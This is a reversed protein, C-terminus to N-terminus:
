SKKNNDSSNNSPLTSSKQQLQQTQGASSPQQQRNSDMGALYGGGGGSHKNFSSSRLSQPPSVRNAAAASDLGAALSGGSGSSSAAAAATAAKYGSKQIKKLLRGVWVQQEEASPAMLLMDKATTPDYSVKCPLVHQPEHGVVHEKHFKVRCLRCEMAPPPRVLAWLPKSCGDCSAPMHFSLAFFEHGKLLFGRGGAGGGPQGGGGGGGGQAVGGGGSGGGGQAVSSVTSVTSVTSDDFNPASANEDPKRSEGEGLYLIQFIRPIDKADARIVDGQTVSRVHFVKNLDLILAADANQRNAESSFFIIKKSSVTVFVKKWGHRRINQKSPIQLWGELSPSPVGLGGIEMIGMNEISPPDGGGGGSDGGVGSSLSATDVNIQALKIQLQELESDKTDLEMQLRNRFQSEEYITAHLDQQEKVYKSVMQDFKEKESKLEQQLKRNEKEKKRLEQSSSSSNKNGKSNKSSNLFDKRQMIEALKNVAQQKLLKETTLLKQIKALEAAMSEGNNDEKKESMEELEEQQQKIKLSLEEQDKTLTDIRQLYDSETDKAAELQIALNRANSRHKEAQNGLEFELMMKEKEMENLDQELVRREVGVKESMELAQALQRALNNREGELEGLREKSEDVEDQLETAQTKYLSRFHQETELQDELEKKQLEDVSRSARIKHLEEEYSKARERFEALDRALRKENAKLLTVESARASLDSQLDSKEERIRDLASAAGRVKEGESRLEEESKTLKYMVKRYDATLMSLERDKDSLGSEARSRASKEESLQSELRKLREELVFRKDGTPQSAAPSVASGTSGSSSLMMQKVRSQSNKLELDLNARAKELEAIHASMDANDRELGQNTERVNSLESILSGVKADLEQSHSSVENRQNRELQLQSQQKALERELLNRDESLAALKDNLDSITSESATKAVSLETNLKKSKELSEAERKLKEAMERKERELNSIKETVMQSNNQERTRKNIEDEMRRRMDSREGEARKRLESELDVKRQLEKLDHKVLAMEKEKKGLGTRMEAERQNADGLEKNVKNLRAVLDDSRERERMLQEATAAGNVDGPLLGGGGTGSVDGGRGLNGISHNRSGVRGPLPPPDSDALQGAAPTGSAAYSSVLQYDKSYTFGVFPLHNGAFAKPTPFTENPADNEVDDFNRTDDDSSLETVVPPVCDRITRFNWTENAFFVHDKVEQVGGNGLRSRRDTLFARIITQASKSVQVDEPFELANKHDMIKGYTGVLSEAYFPTEGFLMEYLVVGVSWWDCERGYEGEGGQSRLVEPSIYDPTGVATESRVMGDADMKMCTGFDALKLHGSGDLLMNDPKVDRHIFGMAHIAELALVVEATYFRAWEEPVDYNSMLNVLDGGPMYDMVMYLYKEDQFAFHLQVIWESNAHAMIDREEWFFASDSRKIMEYKSLLKMAYVKRNSRHRVLQVEGFAGRGIVKIMHFDSAKIRLNSVDNCVKNYRSVFADINKIKRIAPHDCDAVLSQVADLLCDVNLVSRPDRIRQELERLRQLRNEDAAASGGRGGGGGGADTSM